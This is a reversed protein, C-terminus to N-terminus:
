RLSVAGTSDTRTVCNDSRRGCDIGSGTILVTAGALRVPPESTSPMGLVQGEIDGTAAGCSPVVMALLAIAAVTLVVLGINLNSLLQGVAFTWRKRRGVHPGVSGCLPCVGEDDLRGIRCRSCYIAASM